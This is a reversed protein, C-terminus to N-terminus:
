RTVIYHVMTSILTYINVANQIILADTLYADAEQDIFMDIFFFM